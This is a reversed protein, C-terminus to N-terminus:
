ARRASNEWGVTLMNKLISEVFIRVLLVENFLCGANCRKNFPVSLRNVYRNVNIIYINVPLCGMLTNFKNGMPAM